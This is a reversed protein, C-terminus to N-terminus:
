DSAFSRREYAFELLQFESDEKEPAREDLSFAPGCAMCWRVRGILAKTTTGTLEELLSPLSPVLTSGTGFLAQGFLDLTNRIM